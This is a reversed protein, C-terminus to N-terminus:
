TKEINEQTQFNVKSIFFFYFLISSFSSHLPIVAMRFIIYIIIYVAIM